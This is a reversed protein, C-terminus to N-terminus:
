PTVTGTATSWPTGHGDDDIQYSYVDMGTDASTIATAEDADVIVEGANTMHGWITTM